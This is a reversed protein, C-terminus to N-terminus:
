VNCGETFGDMGSVVARPAAMAAPAASPTLTHLKFGSSRLSTVDSFDSGWILVSPIGLRRWQRAGILLRFSGRHAQLSHTESRENSSPRASIWSSPSSPVLRYHFHYTTQLLGQFCGHHLNVCCHRLKFWPYNEIQIFILALKDKMFPM